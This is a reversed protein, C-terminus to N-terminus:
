RGKYNPVGPLRGAPRVLLHRDGCCPVDDRQPHLFPWWIHLTATYICFLCDRVAQLPHDELKSTPRPALLEEAYFSVINRFM